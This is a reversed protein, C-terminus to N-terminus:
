QHDYPFTSARFSYAKPSNHPGCYQRVFSTKSITRGLTVPGFDARGVSALHFAVLGRAMRATLLPAQQPRDRAPSPGGRERPVEGDPPRRESLQDHTGEGRGDM